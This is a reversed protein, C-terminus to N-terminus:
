EFLMGRKLDQAVKEGFLLEVLTFAFEAATGPGRSTILNGDVVVSKDLYNYDTQLEAKVHPYSTLNKGSFIKHAKLALPAACIAGIYKGKIEYHKLLKGLKASVAMNHSGAWGGPLVIANYVFEDPLLIRDARIKVHQSGAVIRHAEKLSAIHVIAGARRLIDVVTVLEIEEYGNAAVVIVSKNSAASRYTLLLTLLVISITFIFFRMPRRSNRRFSFVDMCLM